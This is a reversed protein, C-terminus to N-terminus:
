LEEKMVSFEVVNNSNYCLTDGNAFEFCVYNQELRYTVWGRVEETKTVTDNKLNVFCVNIM